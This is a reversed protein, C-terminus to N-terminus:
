KKIFFSLRREIALLYRCLINNSVNVVIKQRINLRNNRAWKRLEVIWPKTYPIRVRCVVLLEISAIKLCNLGNKYLDKDTHLLKEVIDLFMEEYSLSVKRHYTVSEQNTRYNYDQNNVCVIKRKANLGIAINAIMDEGYYIERPIELASVIVNKRILKGWLEVPVSKRLLRNVYESSLLNEKIIARTVIIDTDDTAYKIMNKLFCESISDDSDVFAIWEGRANDLGLNRAASVGGNEKHFVRIRSDRKAYDDCIKGSSDTSGDDILLLEFDTFSQTLISDLCCNLYKEVNYVPVIVSVKVNM